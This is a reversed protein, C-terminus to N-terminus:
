IEGNDLDVSCDGELCGTLDEVPSSSPQEPAPSPTPIPEPTPETTPIEVVPCITVPPTYCSSYTRTGCSGSRRRRRGGCGGVTNESQDQNLEFQAFDLITNM